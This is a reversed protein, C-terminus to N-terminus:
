IFLNELLFLSEFTSGVVSEVMEGKVDIVNVVNIVLLIEIGVLGDEVFILKPLFKKKFTSFKNLNFLQDRELLNLICQTNHLSSHGSHM